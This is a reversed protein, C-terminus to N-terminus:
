GTIAEVHSVIQTIRNVDGDERVWREILAGISEGLAAEAVERSFGLRRWSWWVYIETAGYLAALRRQRVSGESPLFPAFVAELWELHGTRASLMSEAVMPNRQELDCYSRVADATAEYREALLRVTAAVDGPEVPRAPIPDLEACAGLLGDKSGFARVITKIGVGARAAVEGLSVEDFPRSAFLSWAAELIARRREHQQAARTTKKYARM